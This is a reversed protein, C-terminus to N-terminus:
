QVQDKEILGEQEYLKELVKADASVDLHDSDYLANLQNSFATATTKVIDEIKTKAATVNPQDPQKQLELYNNVLKEITPLYYYITKRLPQAAEQHQYLYDLIKDSTGVLGSLDKQLETNTLQSAAKQIQKLSATGDEISQQQVESFYSREVEVESVIERDPFLKLVKILLGAVVCVALLILWSSLRYMKLFCTGILWIGAMIYIPAPSAQKHTVKKTEKQLM